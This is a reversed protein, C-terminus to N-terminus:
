EPRASATSATVLRALLLFFFEKNLSTSREFNFYSALPALATHAAETLEQNDKRKKKRGVKGEKM